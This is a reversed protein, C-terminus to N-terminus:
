NQNFFKKIKNCILEIQDNNLTVSSPLWLGRDSILSSNVFKSNPQKYPKLNHIGPYFIRTEINSKELFSILENKKKKSELIIDMMWPTIKRLDTEVFEIGKINNLLEHYKKFMNKKIKIRKQLKKM